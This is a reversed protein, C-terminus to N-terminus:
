ISGSVMYKVLNKRTNDIATILTPYNQFFTEWKLKTKSWFINKVLENCELLINKM